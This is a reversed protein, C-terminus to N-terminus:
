NLTVIARQEKIIAAAREKSIMFDVRDRFEEATLRHSKGDAPDIIEVWRLSFFRPTGLPDIVTGQLTNHLTQVALNPSEVAFGASHLVCAHNVTSDEGQRLVVVVPMRRQLEQVITDSNVPFLEGLQGRIHKAVNFEVGM